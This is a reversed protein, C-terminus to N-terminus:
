NQSAEWYEIQIDDGRGGLLVREVELKPRNGGGHVVKKLFTDPVEATANSNKLLDSADGWFAWNSSATPQAFLLERV